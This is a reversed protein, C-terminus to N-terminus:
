VVLTEPANVKKGTLSTKLELASVAAKGDPHNNTIVFTKEAHESVTQGPRGL